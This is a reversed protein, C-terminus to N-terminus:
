ENEAEKELKEELDFNQIKKIVASLGNLRQSSLHSDLALKELTDQANIDSIEQRTKNNFLSSIIYLLGRVIIADGDLKISYTGNHNREKVLWVNAMCGEVIHNEDRIDSYDPLEKGLEIIYEYKDEWDLFMSMDQEIEPITKLM